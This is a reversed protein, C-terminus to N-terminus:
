KGIVAKNRLVSAGYFKEVSRSIGDKDLGADALMDERSGHEIFRDPLGIILIPIQVGHAALCENVGSGAGGPIVNEEITVLCDHTNALKFIMEEDLPKVFRMNVVTADFKEAIEMAPAVMTGFALLAIQRGQRRLEARGIPLATMEKQVPVGPGNGRPYRVAAPQDLRFGTYLMQRCENEDAPAMIVM